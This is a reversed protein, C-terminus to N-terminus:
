EDVKRRKSPSVETTTGNTSIDEGEPSSRKDGQEAEKEGNTEVDMEKSQDIAQDNKEDTASNNTNGNENTNCSSNTGNSDAHKDDSGTEANAPAAADETSPDSKVAEGEKNDDGNSNSNDNDSSDGSSTSSTSSGNSSIPKKPPKKQSGPTYPDSVQTLVHNPLWVQLGSFAVQCTGDTEDHKVVRGRCGVVDDIRAHWRLNPHADVAAKLFEKDDPTNVLQQARVVRPKDGAAFDLAKRPLWICIKLRGFDVEATDDCDDERVIHGTHEVICEMQQTWRLRINEDVCRRLTAEDAVKVEQRLDMLVQTPLWAISSFPQLFVVQSTHDNHDDQLVQGRVGCMAELRDDWKLAGCKAVAERVAEVSGVEVPRTIDMLWGHQVAEALKNPNGALMRRLNELPMRSLDNQMMGRAAWDKFWEQREKSGKELEAPPGEGYTALEQRLTSVEEGNGNDKSTIAELREKRIMDYRMELAEFFSRGGRKAMAAWADRFETNSRDLYPGPILELKPGEVEGGQLLVIMCSLNDMSGSALARKCVGSAVKGLDPAKGGELEERLIRAAHEVVEKNPFAAESIGDCVLLLFDSSGAEFRALEPEASVPHDELAPGGTKKYAADGFARSVALDGNVRPVGSVVEVTGGTRYIRERETPNDPKHDTTLGSDTGPGEFITGDLHGLLVRSDGINGVRLVHKREKTSESEEASMDPEVFVFTGTSGSQQQLDLFEQDLDLMMKKITADDEPVTERASLIETLRKAVFTACSGGGHGDFVGFFGWNPKTVVVHSDEMSKRLGNMEAMGVRFLPGAHREVTLTEVAKPLTGGM